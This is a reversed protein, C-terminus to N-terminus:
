KSRCLRSATKAVLGAPSLRKLVVEAPIDLAHSRGDRLLPNAELFTRVLRKEDEGGIFGIGSGRRRRMCPCPRDSRARGRASRRRLRPRRRMRGDRGPSRGGHPDGGHRGPHLPSEGNSCIFGIGRLRNNQSLIQYYNKCNPGIYPLSSM